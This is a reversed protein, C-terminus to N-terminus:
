VPQLTIIAPNFHPDASIGLLLCITAAINSLGFRGEKIKVPTGAFPLVVFPVPSNTHSSRPKGDDYLMFEANGHDATIILNAGDQKCTEILKGLCEDVTKCATVTADFDATHGVMDPNALNLKIFDFKGGKIAKCADDTIKEAQMKPNKNYMNACVDSKFEKWVEYVESFPRFKNGNFFYTMHGFKVTETVTYQRVKKGCLYESLTNKIKPPPCLYLEPLNQEADYQLAGAFLCKDIAKYQEPTLYTGQEFMRCIQVSRDGRYNLHLVSDGNKILRKPELIFAPMTEDTMDPRQAYEANVADEVDRVVTALETNGRACVEVADSLLKTNLEYRDMWLISRGAITAIKADAGCKKIHERIDNIYKMASQTPVDRGDVLGHISLKIKERACREVLPFLQKYIDSHLRGDSLMNIVNLKTSKANAALKQWTETEWIDGSEFIENFLALGQKINRGSGITNHGVESNGPDKADVLGVETGSATILTSPFNAKAWELNKMDAAKVANGECKPNEGLGDMICLVTKNM